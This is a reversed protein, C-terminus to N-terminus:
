AFYLSVRGVQVKIPGDWPGPVFTIRVSESNWNRTAALRAYVDTAELTFGLGNNAHREDPTSSEVLGFMALTGIRLDPRKEPVDGPPLNLYVAYNPARRNSTLQEVKLVVRRSMLGSHLRAPGMPPHIPLSISKVGEELYFPAETAGVMEPIRPVEPNPQTPM